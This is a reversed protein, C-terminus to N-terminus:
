RHPRIALPPGARVDGGGVRRPSRPDHWAIPSAQRMARPAAAGPTGLRDVVRRVAEADTAGAPCDAQHDRRDRHGSRATCAACVDGGAGQDFGEELARGSRLRIWSPLRADTLSERWGLPGSCGSASASVAAASPSRRRCADIQMSRCRDYTMRERDHSIRRDLQDSLRSRLRPGSARRVRSCSRSRHATDWSLPCM